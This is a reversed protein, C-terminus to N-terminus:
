LLPAVNFGQKLLTMVEDSSDTPMGPHAMWSLLPYEKGFFRVGFSRGPFDEPSEVGTEKLCPLMM